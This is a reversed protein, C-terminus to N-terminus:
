RVGGPKVANFCFGVNFESLFNPDCVLSKIQSFVIPTYNTTERGDIRSLFADLTISRAWTKSEQPLSLM